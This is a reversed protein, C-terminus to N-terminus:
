PFNTGALVAREAHQKAAKPPMAVEKLLGDSM